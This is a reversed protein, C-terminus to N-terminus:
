RSARDELLVSVSDTPRSVPRQRRLEGPKRTARRVDLPEGADYPVILAVPINRDLVTITRGNRVRRLHESLHAKLDAIGIKSMVGNHDHTTM